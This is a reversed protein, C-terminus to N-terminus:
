GFSSSMLLTLGGMLLGNVVLAVLPIFRPRNRQLLAILGALFGIVTLVASFSLGTGSVLLLLSDNLNAPRAVRLYIYTGLFFLILLTALIACCAATM